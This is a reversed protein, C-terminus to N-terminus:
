ALIENPIYFQDTYAIAEIVKQRTNLCTKMRSEIQHTSSGGQIYIRGEFDRLMAIDVNRNFNPFSYGIVILSRTRKLIEYARIRSLSSNSNGENEWAFSLYNKKETRSSFIIDEFCESFEGLSMNRYVFDKVNKETSFDCCGNIRTILGLSTDEAELADNIRWGTSNMVEAHGSKLISNLLIEFQIDYNWTIIRVQTQTLTRPDVKDFISAIFQAYRYDLNEAIADLEEEKFSYSLEERKFGIQEFLMFLSIFSKFEEYRSDNQFKLIKAYTDPTGYKKSMDVMEYLPKWELHKHTLKAEMIKLFNLMRKHMNSVIPLANASAGAGLLYTTYKRPTNM